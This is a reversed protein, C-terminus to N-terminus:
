SPVAPEQRHRHGRGRSRDAVRQRSTQVWPILENESCSEILRNFVSVKATQRQPRSFSSRELVDDIQLSEWARLLVLYPGLETEEEHEIDDVYVAEPTSEHQGSVVERCTCQPLKGEDALKDIVVKAWHAVVPDDPLLREYGAMRHSIELAVAKRYEDPIACGGLSTVIRQRVKGRSDRRNEVLQLVPTTKTKKERFFM